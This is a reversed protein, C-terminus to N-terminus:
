LNEKLLIFGGYVGSNDGLYAKKIEPIEFFTQKGLEELLYPYFVDFNYNSVGGGLVIVEPRWMATVNIIGTSLHSAYSKWIEKDTTPEPKAHYREEFFGGSCFSELTGRIGSKDSMEDKESIVHHGPEANLLDYGKEYKKVRAGGVGSSLTLYATINKDKGSGFYAEGLAGLAADNEVLVKTEKLNEPFLGAFGIGNLIPYNAMKTFKKNVNDFAGPVGLAIAEITQGESVEAIADAIMKKQAELDDNTSFKVIKYIEKLDATSAVRTNSKGLDISIYM